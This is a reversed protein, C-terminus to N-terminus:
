GFELLYTPNCRDDQYVIVEDNMVGSVNSKAWTSDYGPKPFTENYSRPTYVKGCIVDVLFMFCRNNKTGSWYGYSYNLAKSSGPATYTGLGYM